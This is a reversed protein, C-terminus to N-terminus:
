LIIGCTLSQNGTFALKEYLHFTYWYFHSDGCDTGINENLLALFTVTSRVKCMAQGSLDSIGRFAVGLKSLARFYRAAAFIRFEFIYFVLPRYLEQRRIWSPLLRAPASTIM